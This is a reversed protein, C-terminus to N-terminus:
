ENKSGHRINSGSIAYISSEAINTAHDGIREISSFMSRMDLLNNLISQSKKPLGAAKVTRKLLKKNFEDFASEKHITRSALEEDSNMFSLLAKSVMASTIKLMQHLASRSEELLEADKLESYTTTITLVLDAVRELNITMHYIAFLRRLDGAVPQYLVITRIINDDLQTEYRDVKDENKSLLLFIEDPRKKQDTTFLEELLQLQELVLNSIKEFDKEIKKIALDRNTTM